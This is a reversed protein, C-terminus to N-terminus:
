EAALEQDLALDPEAADGLEPKAAAASGKTKAAAKLKGLAARLAPVDSVRLEREEGLVELLFAALRAETIGYKAAAQAFKQRDDEPLPQRGAEEAERESLAKEMDEEAAFFGTAGTVERTSLTGARKEAMAYCQHLMERADTYTWGSGNRKEFRKELTNCNATRPALIRGAGDLIAMTVTVSCFEKTAIEKPEGVRILQLRYMNRLEEAGALLLMPKPFVERGDKTKPIGYHVGEVLVAELIQQMRHQRLKLRALGAQFEQDSLNAVDFQKREVLAHGAEERQRELAYGAREAGERELVEARATM